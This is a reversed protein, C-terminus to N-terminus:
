ESKARRLLEQVQEDTIAGAKWKRLLLPALDRKEMVVEALEGPIRDALLLLEDADAELADAIRQILDASPTEKGAEIKSLHPFGVGVKAALQRQSLGADVRLARIRAGITTVGAEVAANHCLAVHYSSIPAARWATDVQPHRNNPRRM